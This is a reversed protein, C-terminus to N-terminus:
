FFFIFKFFIYWDFFWDNSKIIIKFENVVNLGNVILINKGLSGLILWLKLIEVDVVWSVIEKKIILNVNFFKKVLGMDLIVLLFFGNIKESIIKVIVFKFIINMVFIYIIIIKCNIWFNVLLVFVIMEFVMVLLIYEFLVSVLNKDNNISILLMVGIIVGVSLLIM